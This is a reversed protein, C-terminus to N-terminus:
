ESEELYLSNNEVIAKRNVALRKNMSDSCMTMGKEWTVFVYDDIEGDALVIKCIEDELLVGGDFMFQLSEGKDTNKNAHYDVSVFRLCNKKLGIEERIERVAAQKPSEDKDIVGGVLSWYEKYGPKVLLIQDGINRFIVGVGMRKRPLNEYYDNM